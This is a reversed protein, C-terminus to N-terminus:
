SLVESLQLSHELGARYVPELLVSALRHPGLRREEPRQLDDAASGALCSSLDGGTLWSEEETYTAGIDIALIEAATGLLESRLQTSLKRGARDADTALIVVRNALLQTWESRWGSSGPIGLACIDLEYSSLAYQASIADAAGECLVVARANTDALRQLGFM